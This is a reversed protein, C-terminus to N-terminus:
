PSIRPVGIAQDFGFYFSVPSVGPPLGRPEIPFGLDGRFVIRDLNPSLVRFGMGASHHMTRREFGDFVGGSDYFVAGGLQINWLQLPRSRFELTYALLDKGDFFNSPYGRLRSDGGLYSTGNLYNRYRNLVGGDFVLRGFGLRPTMVRGAVSISADTLRESTQETTWEGALRALGDGLAVTYQAGTSVGLFTRSSGLAELVPYVKVFADHGLRFDEQLGLSEFDLVRVFNTAYTRFAVYPGVRNDSTPVRRALFEQVAEQPYASLDGARYVNRGMSFGLTADFKYAWGFSRTVSAAASSRITRYQFPIGDNQPTAKADFTGLKANVYRRSVENRFGLSTGWAWETLTSFLPQGVSLGAAAGEPQMSRNNLIINADTAGAIRSGWLRPVTYRLGFASSLPLYQFRLSASQHRGFLNNEGPQLLLTELGGPGFGLNWNLRLSWVDKTVLVVRVRDPASGKVPFVLVLSLQSLGRLNRATEDALVGRFKDGVHLLLEREIVYPRSTAHLRNLFLPAPDRREVVELPVVEVGEIVKGEPETEVATDLLACVERITEEEYPSYSGTRSEPVALGGPVDDGRAVKPM